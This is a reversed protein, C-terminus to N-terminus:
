KTRYMSSKTIHKLISRISETILISEAFSQSLKVQRQLRGLRLEDLKTPERLSKQAAVIRVVANGAVDLKAFPTYPGHLAVPALRKAGTAPCPM